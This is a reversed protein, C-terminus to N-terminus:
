KLILQLFTSNLSIKIEIKTMLSENFPVHMFNNTQEKSKILTSSRNVYCNTINMNGLIFFM